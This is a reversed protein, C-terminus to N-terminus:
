ILSFVAAVVTRPIACGPLASTKPVEPRLNLDQQGSWSVMIVASSDGGIIFPAQPPTEPYLAPAPSKSHSTARLKATVGRCSVPGM